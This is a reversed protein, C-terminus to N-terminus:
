NAERSYSARSWCMEVLQAFRGRNDNDLFDRTKKQNEPKLMDHLQILLSATGMDVILPEFKTPTTHAENFTWNGGEDFEGEDAWVVSLSCKNEAMSKFLEFSALHCHAIADAVAAEHEPSEIQTYDM